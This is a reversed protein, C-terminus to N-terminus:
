PHYLCSNKLPRFSFGCLYQTKEHYFNLGRFLTKPLFANRSLNVFETEATKGAFRDVKRAKRYTLSTTSAASKRPGSKVKQSTAVIRLKSLKEKTRLPPAYYYDERKTLMHWIIRTLKAAVAVITKNRGKKTKLHLFFARLPSPLNVIVQADQVLVWRAHSCGRKTNRGTYCTETSQYISSCLGFYGVLKKPSKFRSINNITAAKLSFAIFYDVGPITM